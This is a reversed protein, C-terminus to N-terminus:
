KKPIKGILDLATKLDSVSTQFTQTTPNFLLGAVPQGIAKSIVQEMQLAVNSLSLDVKGTPERGFFKQFEKIQSDDSAMNMDPAMSIQDPEKPREFNRDQSPISNQFPGPELLTPLDLLGGLEHGIM